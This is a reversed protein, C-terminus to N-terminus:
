PVINDNPNKFYGFSTFLNLLHSFQKDLPERMDQVMFRIKEDIGEQQATEQAYQINQHCISVLSKMVM